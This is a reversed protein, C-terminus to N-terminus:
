QSKRQFCIKYSGIMLILVILLFVNSNPTQNKISACGRFGIDYIARQKDWFKITSGGYFKLTEYFLERILSVHSGDYLANDAKVLAEIIDNYNPEVPIFLMAKIVLKDVEDPTLSDRLSWLGSCFTLGVSYTDGIIEDSQYPRLISLDRQIDPYNKFSYEGVKTIDSNNIKSVYSVAFYDSLGEHLADGINPKNLKGAILGILTDTIYHQYEHTIIIAERALPYFWGLGSEENPPLFYICADGPPKTENKLETGWRCTVGYYFANNFSQKSFCNVIVDVLPKEKLFSKDIGLENYYQTLRNRFENIHYYVNIGDFAQNPCESTSDSSCLYNYKSPDSSSDPISKDNGYIIDPDIDSLEYTAGEQYRMVHLFSNSVLDPSDLNDLLIESLTEFDPHAMYVKQNEVQYNRILNKKTLIKGTNADFYYKSCEEFLSCKILLYTDHAKGENSVWITRKLNNSNRNGFRDLLNHYIKENYYVSKEFPIKWNSSAFDIYGKRNYHVKLIHEDIPYNKYYLKFWYHLHTSDTILRYFRWEFDKINFNRKIFSEVKEIIFPRESEYTRLLGSPYFNTKGYCIISFYLFLIIRHAM